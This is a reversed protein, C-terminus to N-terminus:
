QTLYKGKRLKPTDGTHEITSIDCMQDQEPINSSQLYYNFTELNVMENDFNEWKVLAYSENSSNTDYGSSNTAILKESAETKEVDTQTDVGSEESQSSGQYSRDNLQKGQDSDTKEAVIGLIEVM